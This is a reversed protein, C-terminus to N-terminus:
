SFLVPSDFSEAHAPPHPDEVFGRAQFEELTRDLVGGLHRHFTAVSFGEAHARIREPEFHDRKREFMAIAQLVADVTQEPFFLGTEGAVVTELAGGRGYAIVPTGCAQAEVPAIGFDEHAAFLFARAHRLYNQVTDDDQRGLLEVNPTATAKLTKFQPGSGIVVLKRDPLRRFAEVLLDVRKYPMLRSVTVYYDDREQGISLRETDVPPYVVEAHRRYARWIRQAVARSNAVFLDVRNTSGADFLRLYHLLLRAVARKLGRRYGERSLYEFQLDWAYRAPSHQYCVHLQRADTLVGKAALFSSSLVLQYSSLDFGEVALPVLPMYKQYHRDLFPLKQLFSTQVQRGQLFAEQGEPLSLLPSFVDAQPFLGILHGLVREAGGFVTLWDHVLATRVTGLATASHQM